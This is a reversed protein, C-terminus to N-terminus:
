LLQLFPLCLLCISWLDKRLSLQYLFLSEPIGTPVPLECIISMDINNPITERSKRQREVGVKEEKGM